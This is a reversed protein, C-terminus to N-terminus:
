FETSFSWFLYKGYDICVESYNLRNLTLSKKCFPVNCFIGITFVMTFLQLPFFKYVYFTKLLPAHLALEPSEAIVKLYMNRKGVATKRFAQCLIKESTKWFVSKQKYAYAPLNPQLEIHKPTEWNSGSIISSPMSLKFVWKVTQYQTQYSCQM